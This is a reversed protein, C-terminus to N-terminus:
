PNGCIMNTFAMRYLKLPPPKSLNAKCTPLQLNAIVQRHSSRATSVVSRTYLQRFLCSITCTSPHPLARFSPQILPDGPAHSTWRLPTPHPAASQCSTHLTHHRSPPTAHKKASSVCTPNRSNTAGFTIQEWRCSGVVM